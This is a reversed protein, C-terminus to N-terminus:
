SQPGKGKELEAIRKAQENVQRKLATLESDEESKKAAAAKRAAAEERAVQEDREVQRKEAAIADTLSLGAKMRASVGERFEEPVMDMGEAINALYVRTSRRASRSSAIVNWIMLGIVVAVLAVMLLAGINLLIKM